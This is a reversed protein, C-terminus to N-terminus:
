KKNVIFYDEMRGGTKNRIEDLKLMITGLTACDRMYTNTVPNKSEFTRSLIEDNYKSITGEVYNKVSSLAEILKDISRTSYDAPIDTSALLNLVEISFDTGKEEYNRKQKETLGANEYVLNDFNNELKLLITKALGVSTREIPILFDHIKINEETKKQLEEPNM